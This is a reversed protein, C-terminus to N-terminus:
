RSRRNANRLVDGASWGVARSAAETNLTPLRPMVSADAVRLRDTGRVRLEDDVVGDPGLACTGVADENFGHKLVYQVVDEPDVVAAAPFTETMASAFPETALIERARAFAAFTLYWDHVTSLYGPVLRPPDELTPGTIHVSGVSTPSQPYFAVSVGSSAAGGAPLAGGNAVLTSTFKLQMDLSSTGGKSNLVALVSTGCSKMADPRGLVRMVKARLRAALTVSEPARDSVGNLRLSFAAGRRQRLNSGVAPNAAVLQVGVASLVKPDGVGSRELVLTNSVAGACLIVERRATFRVTGWPTATEVGIATTGDFLVRRAICHLRVRVNRRQALGHLPPRHLSMRLAVSESWPTYATKTHDGGLEEVTQIGHRALAAIWLESMADPPRVAQDAPRGDGVHLGTADAAHREMPMCAELFRAWNWSAVDAAEWSQHAAEAGWSATMDSTAPSGDARGDTRRCGDLLQPARQNRHQLGTSPQVFRSSMGHGQQEGAGDGEIVLVRNQPNASLRHALASGAAGSGVIIYDVVNKLSMVVGYASPIPLVALRGRQRVTM